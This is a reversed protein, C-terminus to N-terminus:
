ERRITREELDGIPLEVELVHRRFPALRQLLEAVGQLAAAPLENPNHARSDRSIGLYTARGTYRTVPMRAGTIMMAAIRHFPQAGAVIRPATLWTSGSFKSPQM